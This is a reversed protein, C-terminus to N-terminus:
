APSASSRSPTANRIASAKRGVKPASPTPPMTAKANPTMKLKAVLKRLAIEMARDLHLVGATPQGLPLCNGAWEIDNCAAPFKKAVRDGFLFPKGYLENFEPRLSYFFRNSLILAFDNKIKQIETLLDTAYLPRHLKQALYVRAKIAAINGPLAGLEQDQLFRELTECKELFERAFDDDERLDSIRKEHEVGILGLHVQLSTEMHTLETGIVLYRYGWHNLM